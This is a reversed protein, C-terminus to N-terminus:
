SVKKTYKANEGGILSSHLIVDYNQGVRSNTGCMTVNNFINPEDSIYIKLEDIKISLGRDKGSVTNFEISRLKQLETADTIFKFITKKECFIVPCDSDYVCNGTDYFGTLRLTKNNITVEIDYVNSFIDKRRYLYSIFSYVTKYLIYVPLIMIGISIESSYDLNLITFIGIIGGGLAFTLLFFIVASIFFSKISKYTSALVVMLLGFCIKLLTVIVSNFELIPYILAGVAGLLACLLLRWVKIKNGTLKLTAKLILYDIVLNDILVYEIFVTM